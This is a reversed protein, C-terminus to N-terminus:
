EKMRRKKNKYTHKINNRSNKRWKVAINGVKTKNLHINGQQPKNGWGPTSEIYYVRYSPFFFIKKTHICHKIINEPDVTQSNTHKDEFARFKNRETGKDTWKLCFLSFHFFCFFRIRRKGDVARCFHKSSWSLVCCVLWCNM